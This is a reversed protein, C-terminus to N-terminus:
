GWNGLLLLFDLIGVNCDGDFDAPCNGCDSCTGWAALLALFDVIGV